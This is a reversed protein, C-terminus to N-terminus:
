TENSTGEIAVSQLVTATVGCLQAYRRVLALDRDALAVFLVGSVRVRTRNKDMVWGSGHGLVRIQIGNDFLVKAFAGARVRESPVLAVCRESRVRDLFIM